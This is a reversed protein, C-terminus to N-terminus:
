SHSYCGTECVLQRKPLSDTQSMQVSQTACVGATKLVTDINSATKSVFHPVDASSFTPFVM